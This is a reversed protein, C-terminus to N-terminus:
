KVVAHTTSRHHARNLDNNRRKVFLFRNGANHAFDRRCVDGDLDDHNIVVTGVPSRLASAFSASADHFRRTSVSAGTSGSDGRQPWFAVNNNKEVAVAAITRPGYSLKDAWDRSACM